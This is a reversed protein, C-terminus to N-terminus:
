DIVREALLFLYKSTRLGTCCCMEAEKTTYFRVCLQRLSKEESKSMGEQLERM